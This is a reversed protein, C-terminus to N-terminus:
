LFSHIHLPMDAVFDGFDPEHEAGFMEWQEIAKPASQFLKEFSNAVVKELKAMSDPKLTKPVLIRPSCCTHALWSVM